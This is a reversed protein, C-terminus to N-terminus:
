NGGREMFALLDLLEAESMGNALGPPMLSTITLSTNDTRPIKRNSGPDVPNIEITLSTGDDSLIRGSLIEGSKLTATAIRYPDAVVRWPDLLSELITRRDFRGAIGTLDPGIASGQPGYRHCAACQSNFLERGRKLDREPAAVTSIKPELEAQTWAKVFPRPALQPISAASPDLTALGSTLATKEEPTLTSEFDARAYRLTLGLHHAGVSRASERRFADIWAKRQDLTWGSKVQRLTFLYHLRAEQNAGKEILPLVKAVAKPSALYVLLEVGLWDPYPQGSPIVSEIFAALKATEDPAPKGWRILSLQVARLLTTRDNASLATWDRTRLFELVRPQFEATSTRATALASEM